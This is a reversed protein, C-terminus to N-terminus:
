FLFLDYWCPPTMLFNMSTMMPGTILLSIFQLKSELGWLYFVNFMVCYIVCQVYYVYCFVFPSLHWVLCSGLLPFLSCFSGVEEFGWMSSLEEM